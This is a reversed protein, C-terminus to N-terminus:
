YIELCLKLNPWRLPNFWLSLNIGVKRRHATMRLTKVRIRLRSGENIYINQLLEMNTGWLKKLLPDCVPPSLCCFNITKGNQLSSTQFLLKLLNSDKQSIHPFDTGHTEKLKQHNEPLRQCGKADRVTANNWDRGENSCPTIGTDRDGCPWRRIFVTTM